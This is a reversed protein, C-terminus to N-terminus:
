RNEPKIYGGCVAASIDRLEDIDSDSVGAYGIILTNTKKHEAFFYDDLCYLRMDRNAAEKIIEDAFPTKALIHLGTKDGSIKALGNLARVLRDRRKRYINKVRNLHRALYGGAIFANLTHQEFRPVTSSYGHFEREYVKLLEPPLVMYAVRISPALVRSFTSLYIVRGGGSLGQMAPIPKISFNFESNYDDEIIYREGRGAWAILEARRDIPMTIGSPFQHSPTVYVIEAGSAELEDVRIGKEDLGTYKIENGANKIIRETKSYGPDEVAYVKNKGIIETLLMLLYETGAGVIIQRASCRVGRFAALYKAISERLEYDGRPEGANLLEPNSYMIEKSLKVWTAYPFSAVDVANIRFDVRPRREREMEGEAQVPAGIHTEAKNVYHGSRPVAKLYGEQVLISYATEVTNVSIKLHSALSKKSPMRENEAFVGTKISDAIYQYLQEYMPKGTGTEFVFTFNNM